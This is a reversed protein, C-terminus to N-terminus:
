NRTQPVPLEPAPAPPLAAVVAQARQMLRTNLVGTALERVIEWLEPNVRLEPKFELYPLLPDCASAVAVQGGYLVRQWSCSVDVWLDTLVELAQEETIPTQREEDRPDLREQFILECAALFTGLERFEEVSPRAQKVAIERTTM